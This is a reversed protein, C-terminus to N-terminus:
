DAYLFSTSNSSAFSSDVTCPMTSKSSFLPRELRGLLSIVLDLLQFNLDGFDLSILCHFSSAILALLHQFLNSLPM